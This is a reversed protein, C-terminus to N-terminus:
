QRLFFFDTPLSLFLFLFFNTAINRFVQKTYVEGDRKCKEGEERFTYICEHTFNINGVCKGLGPITLAPLSCFVPGTPHYRFPKHFVVTGLSSM